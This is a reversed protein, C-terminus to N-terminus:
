MILTLSWALVLVVFSIGAWQLRSIWTAKNSGKPNLLLQTSRTLIISKIVCCGIMHIGFCIVAMYALPGRGEKPDDFISTLTDQVSVKLLVQDEGLFYYQSVGTGLAAFLVIPTTWYNAKPFESPDKMEAMIELIILQYFYASWLLELGLIPGNQHQKDLALSGGVGTWYPELQTEAGERVGEGTSLSYISICVFILMCTINVANMITLSHLYRLQTLPLVLVVMFATFVIFCRGNTVNVQFSVSFFLGNPLILLVSFSLPFLVVGSVDKSFFWYINSAATQLQASLLLLITLNVFFIAAYMAAPSRTLYYVLDGISIAGHFVNRCRWLLHATYLQLPWVLILLIVGLVWGYMGLIVSSYLLIWGGIVENIIYLTVQWWETRKPPMKHVNRERMAGPEDSVYRDSATSRENPTDVDPDASWCSLPSLEFFAGFIGSLQSDTRKREKPNSTSNDEDSPSAIGGKVRESKLDVVTSGEGRESKARGFMRVEREPNLRVDGSFQDRPSSERGGSDTNADRKFTGIIRTSFWSWDFSGKTREKSDEMSPNNEIELTQKKQSKRGSLWGLVSLSSRSASSEDEPSGGGSAETRNSGDDERASM